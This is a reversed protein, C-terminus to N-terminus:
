SIEAAQRLQLIRPIFDDDSAETTRQGGDDLLMGLHALKGLRQQCLDNAHGHPLRANAVRM